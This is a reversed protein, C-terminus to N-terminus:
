SKKKSPRKNSAQLSQIIPWVSELKYLYKPKRQGRNTVTEYGRDSEDRFRDLRKRLADGPVRFRKAWGSASEKEQGTYGQPLGTRKSGHRGKASVRYGRLSLYVGLADRVQSTFKEKLFTTTGEEAMRVLEAILALLADASQANHTGLSDANRPDPFWGRAIAHYQRWFVQWGSRVLKGQSSDTGENREIIRVCRKRVKEPDLGQDISALLKRLDADLQAQSADDLM